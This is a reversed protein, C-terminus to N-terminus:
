NIRIAPAITVFADGFVTKLYHLADAENAFANYGCGIRSMFGTFGHKESDEFGRPLPSLPDVFFRYDKMGPQPTSLKVGPRVRGLVKGDAQRLAFFSSDGNGYNSIYSGM